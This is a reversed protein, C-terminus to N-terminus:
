VLEFLLGFLNWVTMAVLFCSTRKHFIASGGTQSHLVDLMFGVPLSKMVPHAGLSHM